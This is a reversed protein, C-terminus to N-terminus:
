KRGAPERFYEWGNLPLPQVGTDTAISVGKGEQVVGIRIMNMEDILSPDSVTGVLNMDAGPGTGLHIPDEQLFDAVSATIPNVPILRADLMFRKGNITALEALSQSLGDTNDMATIRLKRQALAKGVQLQPVPRVLASRLNAEDGSDLQMGQPKAERFYRFATACLGFPRTMYIADGPESGYRLLAANQRTFGISTACLSPEVSDSLDGGIIGCHNQNAAAVAGDVISTLYDVPFDSPVAINLLLGIPVGGMAAIDSLNLVALYYGLDFESMLKLSYATLDWPVRDTSICVASGDPIDLVASDDGALHPDRNPNVRPLIVEALLRKEGLQGVIGAV